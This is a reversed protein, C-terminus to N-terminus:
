PLKELLAQASARQEDNAALELAKEADARAGAADDLRIRAEARLAYASYREDLALTETASQEAEEYRKMQLLIVTRYSHPDVYKPNLEIAKDCSNLALAFSRGQAYSQCLGFHGQVSNADEEVVERFLNRAKNFDGADLAQNAEVLRPANEPSVSMANLVLASMLVVVVATVLMLGYLAAGMITRWRRPRGLLMLLLALVLAVTLAVIWTITESTAILLISGLILLALVTNRAWKRDLWLFVALALTLPLRILLVWLPESGPVILAFLVNVLATLLLLVAAVRCAIRRERDAQREEPTWYDQETERRPADSSSLPSADM